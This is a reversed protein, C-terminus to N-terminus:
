INISTRLLDENVVPDNMTTFAHMLICDYSIFCSHFTLSFLLYSKFSHITFRINLWVVGFPNMYRELCFVQLARRRRSIGVVQPHIKGPESGHSPLNFSGMLWPTFTCILLAKLFSKKQWWFIYYFHLPSQMFNEEVRIGSHLQHRLEM